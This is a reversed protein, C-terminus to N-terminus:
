SRAGAGPMLKPYLTNAREFHVLPKAHILYAERPAKKFWGKAMSVHEPHGDIEVGEHVPKHWRGRKKRFLHCHWHYEEEPGLEGAWYNVSFYQWGFPAKSDSNKVGEMHFMMGFSPQEDADLRLIWEVDDSVRELTSNRAESFDDKWEHDYATVNKWTNYLSVQNNASGTDAIVIEDVVPQVFDCLMALRDAPEDKVIMCLAIKGM